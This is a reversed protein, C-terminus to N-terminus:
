RRIYRAMFPTTRESLRGAITSSSRSSYPFAAARPAASSTQTLAPGRLDVRDNWEAEAMSGSRTSPSASQNSVKQHCPLEQINSCKMGHRPFFRELFLRPAFGDPVCCAAASRDIPFGRKLTARFARWAKPCYRNAKSSRQRCSSCQRSVVQPGRDRGGIGVGSREGVGDIKRRAGVRQRKTLEIDGVGIVRQDDVALPRASGVGRNDILGGDVTHKFDAASSHDELIEFDGTARGFGVIGTGGSALDSPPPMRSSPSTSSLLTATVTIFCETCPVLDALVGHRPTKEVPSSVMVSPLTISFLLAMPLVPTAPVLEPSPANKSASPPPTKEFM